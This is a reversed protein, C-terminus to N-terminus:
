VAEYPIVRAWHPNGAINEKIVDSIQKAKSQWTNDKAERNLIALYERDGRKRLAEEVRRIFDEHDRGILVSRYKRCEPLDTTVIPHGLAMYEFLKIPSTSETVENIRFPITSVDFWCAYQPLVKYDIPGIVTINPCERIPYTKLSRDYDWGILLIEYEPHALALEMMLEYDVWKALAGFYGIICKGRNVVKRIDQPVNQRDRSVSFHELEVGNTVLALNKTRFGAVERYLKEASAVCAIDTTQLVKSHRNLLCEAVEKGAIDAHIEDIYEYIMVDGVNRHTQIYEWSCKPDTAYVHIIKRGPLRDVMEFQDTVYCGEHVQQFGDISDFANVTCYFFLFGQDALGKAIHQPRQFLPMNWDVVARFVIVPKDKNADLIRDLQARFYPEFWKAFLKGRTRRAVSQLVYGHGKVRALLIVNRVKRALIALKHNAICLMKQMPM